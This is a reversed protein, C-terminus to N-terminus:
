TAITRGLFVLGENDIWVVAFRMVYSGYLAGLRIGLCPDVAVWVFGPESKIAVESACELFSRVGGDRLVLYVEPTPGM